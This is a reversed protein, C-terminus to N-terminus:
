VIDEELEFLDRVVAAVLAGDDAAARAKLNRTVHHLMKNMLRHSFQEILEKPLECGVESSLRNYVRALEAQRVREAQERLQRITPVVTRSQYDNWFVNFEQQIIQEVAPVHTQREVLNEEIVLQLDDMDHLCVNPIDNVDREVDRPVAIDVICMARDPRMRMIPEMDARALITFPASSTTFVVDAGALAEKLDTIPRARIGWQDALLRANEYTRSVVTVNMVDRQSLGKVITQAMEGAGIVLVERHKLGGSTVEAKTIGLSSVSASGGGIETETRARKAAHIASRFLLSLAHGTAHHDHAHEFAHTVQGLIQPEGLAMSELGCSVRYLHDIADQGSLSVTYQEVDGAAVGRRSLLDRWLEDMYRASSTHAYLELRNCTSLIVAEVDTHDGLWQAQQANTLSLQERITLPTQHHSVSRCHFM